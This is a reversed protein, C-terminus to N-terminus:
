ILAWNSTWLWRLLLYYNFSMEQKLSNHTSINQLKVYCMQWSESDMWESLVPYTCSMQMNLPCCISVYSWSQLLWLETFQKFTLHVTLISIFAKLNLWVHLHLCNCRFYHLNNTKGSFIQYVTWLCMVFSFPIGTSKQQPKMPWM